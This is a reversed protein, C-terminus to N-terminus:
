ADDDDGRNGSYSSFAKMANSYLEEVRKASQISETKATLLEKEKELIEKKLKAETSALKLFHTVEQSSATGNRIRKEVLDYAMAAIQNERAEPTRAPPRTREANSRPKPQSPM